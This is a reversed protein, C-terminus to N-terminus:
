KSLLKFCHDFIPIPDSNNVIILFLRLHVVDYKGQLNQPPENTADLTQLSVNSPLLLKHPYQSASIDFGDLQTSAPLTKALDLLWASIPTTHSRANRPLMSIKGRVQVLM